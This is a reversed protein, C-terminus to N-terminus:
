RNGGRRQRRWRAQREKAAILNGDGTDHRRSQSAGTTFGEFQRRDKGSARGRCPARAAPRHCDLQWRGNQWPHLWTVDPLSEWQVVDTVRAIVAIEDEATSALPLGPKGSRVNAVALQLRPDMSTKVNWPLVKLASSQTPKTLASLRTGLEDSSPLPAAPSMGAFTSLPSLVRFGPGFPDFVELTSKTKAANRVASLPLLVRFGPGFPDFVETRAAKKATKKAKKKTASKKSAKRAM